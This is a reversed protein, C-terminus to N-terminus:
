EEGRSSGHTSRVVRKREAKLLYTVAGSLTQGRQRALERLLGAADYSLRLHVQERPESLAGRKADTLHATTTPGRMM